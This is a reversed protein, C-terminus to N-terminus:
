VTINLAYNINGSADVTLGTPRGLSTTVIYINSTGDMNAKGIGTINGIETWFFLSIKFSFAYPNCQQENLCNNMLRFCQKNPKVLILIISGHLSKM